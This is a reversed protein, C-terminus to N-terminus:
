SLVVFHPFFQFCISVLTAVSNCFLNSTLSCIKLPHLFDHPIRLRTMCYVQPLTKTECIPIQLARGRSCSKARNHFSSLMKIPCRFIKLSSPRSHRHYEWETNWTSHRTRMLYFDSNPFVEKETKLLLSTLTCFLGSNQATIIVEM